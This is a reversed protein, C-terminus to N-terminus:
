SRRKTIGTRRATFLPGLVSVSILAEIDAWVEQFPNPRTRWSHPKASDSPLAGSDRYRRATKRDMGSLMASLTLNQTETLKEM